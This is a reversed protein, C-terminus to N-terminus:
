VLVDFGWEFHRPRLISAGVSRGVWGGVLWQKPPNVPGLQNEVKGGGCRISKGGGKVFAM